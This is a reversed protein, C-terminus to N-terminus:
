FKILLSVDPVLDATSPSTSSLSSCFKVRFPAMRAHDPPLRSCPHLAAAIKPKLSACLHAYRRSFVSATSSSTRHQSASASFSLRPHEIRQAAQQIFAVLALQLLAERLAPWSTSRHISPLGFLFRPLSTAAAPLLFALALTAPSAETTSKIPLAQHM